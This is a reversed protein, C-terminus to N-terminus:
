TSAPPDPEKGPPTAASTVPALSLLPACFNQFSTLRTTSRAHGCIWILLTNLHVHEKIGLQFSVLSFPFPPVFQSAFMLLIIAVEGMSKWFPVSPVTLIISLLKM